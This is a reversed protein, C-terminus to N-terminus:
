ALFLDVWKGKRGGRKCHRPNILQGGLAPAGDINSLLPARVKRERKVGRWDVVFSGRVTSRDKRGYGRARGMIASTVCGILGMDAVRGAPKEPDVGYRLCGTLGGTGLGIHSRSGTINHSQGGDNEQKKRYKWNVWHCNLSTFHNDVDSGIGGLRGEVGSIIFSSTPEQRELIVIPQQQEEYLHKVARCPPVLATIAGSERVVAVDAVVVDPADIVDKEKAVTTVDPRLAIKAAKEEGKNVAFNPAVTSRGDISLAVDIVPASSPPEEKVTLGLTSATLLAPPEETVQIKEIIASPPAIIAPGGSHLRQTKKWNEDIRQQSEKIRLLQERISLKPLSM